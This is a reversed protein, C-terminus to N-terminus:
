CGMKCRSMRTGGFVCFLGQDKLQSLMEYLYASQGKIFGHWM